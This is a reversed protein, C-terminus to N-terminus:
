ATQLEALLMEAEEIDAECMNEANLAFQLCEIVKAKEKPSVLYLKALELAGSGEGAEMSKEFWYKAKLMDGKMRYSIGLNLLASLEGREAAELEWEIAKDYNCAVGEGCSYMSAVRLMSYTCGAEALALFIAFSQEFNGNEFLADGKLYLEENIM